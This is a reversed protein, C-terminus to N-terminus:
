RDDGERYRDCTPCEIVSVAGAPLPDAFSLRMRHLSAATVILATRTVGYGGCARCRTGSKVHYRTTAPRM